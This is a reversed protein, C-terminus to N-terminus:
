NGIWHSESDVTRRLIRKYRHVYEPLMIWKSREADKKVRGTADIKDHPSLTAKTRDIQDRRTEQLNRM